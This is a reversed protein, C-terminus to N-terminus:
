DRPLEVVRKTEFSEYAALVVRLAAIGDAGSAEPEEGRLLRGAFSRIQAGFHAPMAPGDLPIEETRDKGFFFLKNAYYFLRLAGEDGHLSANSPQPDWEGPLIRHGDLSWSPGSSYIGESPMQAPHTAEDYILHGSAGNELTMTLFETGPPKGSANGRGIVTQVRSGALWAFADVLHIGHDLLGAGGGGPGGRPYHEPGLDPFAEPGRGGVATEIMLRIRGLRGGDIMEKAKRWAPLFRYSAGYCLKVGAEECKGVMARADDLAVALPKECLVHISRYAASETAERHFPPPTLVCAIDLREEELMERYHRYGTIGWRRAMERLREERPEAGAVVEIEEVGRYGELHLEAVAGLGILGVRLRPM